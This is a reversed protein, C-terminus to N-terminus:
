KLKNIHICIMLNFNWSKFKLPLYRIKVKDNKFVEKFLSILSIVHNKHELAYILSPEFTSFKKIRRYSYMNKILQNLIGPDTPMVVTIEGGVKVIRRVELMAALPDDLHHFLCTSSVRDYYNDPFPLDEVNAEIIKLVKILGSNIGQSLKGAQLPFLDVGTYEEKPIDKVYKLHEGSGFGIELTKSISKKDWYKELVKEFWSIAGSQM